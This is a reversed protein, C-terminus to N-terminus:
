SLSFRFVVLRTEKRMSLINFFPNSLVYLRADNRADIYDVKGSSMPAKRVRVAWEYPDEVPM